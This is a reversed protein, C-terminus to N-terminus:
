ERSRERAAPAAGRMAATVPVILPRGSLKNREVLVPTGYVEEIREYTLVEQPTGTEKITGRHMMAICDCYEAACNLDHLVVVVTFGMRACLMRISDLIHIRHSIDLNSIPEDLLIIQPQQVLARAVQVLQREGGSIATLKKHRLHWVETIRMFEEIITEDQRGAMVQLSSFYPIRGMAVYDHVSIAVPSVFQSVVAIERAITRPAMDYLSAGDVLMQGHFPRLVGSFVRLLTTKGSGNPGIIGTFCGKDVRCYVDDLVVTEDYGATIGRAELLATM